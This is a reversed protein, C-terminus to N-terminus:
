ALKKCTVISRGSECLHSLVCRRRERSVAGLRAEGGAAEDLAHHIASREHDHVARAIGRLGEESEVHPERDAGTACPVAALDPRGELEPTSNVVENPPKRVALLFDLAAPQGARSLLLAYTESVILNTTVVRRGSRIAATLADALWKHDPHSAVAIPYWASTDVFLEAAM